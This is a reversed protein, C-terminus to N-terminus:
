KAGLQWVINHSVPKNDNNVYDWQAIAIGTWEDYALMRPGCNHDMKLRNSWVSQRDMGLRLTHLIEAVDLLPRHRLDLGATVPPRGSRKAKMHAVALTSSLMQSNLVAGKYSARDWIDGIKFHQVIRVNNGFMPICLTLYDDDVKIEVYVHQDDIQFPRIRITAMAKPADVVRGDFMHLWIPQLGSPNSQVAESSTSTAKPLRYVAIHVHCVHVFTDSTIVQLDQNGFTHFDNFQRSQTLNLLCISIISVSQALRWTRFNSRTVAEPSNVENLDLVSVFNGSSNRLTVMVTNDWASVMDYGGTDGIGLVRPVLKPHEESNGARRPSMQVSLIWYERKM